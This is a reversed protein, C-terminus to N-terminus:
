GRNPIPSKAEVRIMHVWGHPFLSQCRGMASRAEVGQFVTPEEARSREPCGSDLSNYDNVM